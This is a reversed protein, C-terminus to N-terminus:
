MMECTQMCGSFNKTFYVKQDINFVNLNGQSKMVTSQCNLPQGTQSELQKLMLLMM